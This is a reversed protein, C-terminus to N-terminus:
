KLTEMTLWRRLAAKARHLRSKVTGLAVGTLASVEAGTMDHYFILELTERQDAPLHDLADSLSFHAEESIEPAALDENLPLDPPRTRQRRNIAQYRAIAILWTRVSSEGRFRSAGNWAALMVDQLIEEAAARDDLQGILYALLELGHRQYLTQVALTDGRAMAQVLDFDSVM